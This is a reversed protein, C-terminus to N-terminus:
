FQYKNLDIKPAIIQPLYFLSVPQVILVSM